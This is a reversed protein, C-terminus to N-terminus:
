KAFSHQPLSQLEGGLTACREKRKSWRRCWGFRQDNRLWHAVNSRRVFRYHSRRSRRDMPLTKFFYEEDNSASRWKCCSLIRLARAETKITLNTLSSSSQARCSGTTSVSRADNNTTGLRLTCNISDIM